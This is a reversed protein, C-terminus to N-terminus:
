RIGKIRNVLGPLPKKMRKSLPALRKDFPAAERLTIAVTKQQAAVDLWNQVADSATFDETHHDVAM